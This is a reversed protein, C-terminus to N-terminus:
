QLNCGSVFGPLWKKVVKIMLRAVYAGAVTFVPDFNAINRPRAGPEDHWVENTKSFFNLTPKWKLQDLRAFAESYARRKSPATEAM